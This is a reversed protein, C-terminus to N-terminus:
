EPYGGAMPTISRTSFTQMGLALHIILLQSWANTQRKGSFWGNGADDQAYLDYTDETLIGAPFDDNVLRVTDRVVITDIGAIPISCPIGAGDTVVTVENIETGEDTDAEYCFATGPSLTFFPNTINTPNGFVASGFDPVIFPDAKVVGGSFGIMIVVAVSLVLIFGISRRPKSSCKM